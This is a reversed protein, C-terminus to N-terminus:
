ARETDVHVFEHAIVSEWSFLIVKVTSDSRLQMFLSGRSFAEKFKLYTM